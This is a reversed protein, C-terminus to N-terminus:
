LKDGPAHMKHAERAREDAASAEYRNLMTRTRWGALRMLDGENGGDSLWLHAFTHRFQHPHIQPIGASASRKYIIQRIGGSTLEGQLGLWMGTLHRFTHQDRLRLYRDIALSTKNGFRVTRPRRGKGMMVVENSVLDFNTIQMGELESLRVGTDLFLTIMATDRRDAFSKGSTVKLLKRLSDPPIVAVPEELMTPPKMGAMPYATIYEEAVAWKLFQQLARFRTGVSQARNVLLMEGFFREMDTCSLTLLMLGERELYDGLRRVAERYTSITRPSRNLATLHRAFSEEMRTVSEM